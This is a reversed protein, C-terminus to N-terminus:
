PKVYDLVEIKQQQLGPSLHVDFGGITPFGEFAELSYRTRYVLEDVREQSIRVVPVERAPTTYAESLRKLM